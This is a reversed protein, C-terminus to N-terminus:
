RVLGQLEVTAQSIDIGSDQYQTLMRQLSSKLVDPPAGGGKVKLYSQWDLSFDYKLQALKDAKRKEAMARLEAEASAQRRVVAALREKENSVSAKQEQTDKLKANLSDIEAKMSSLENKLLNERRASEDLAEVLDKRYKIEQKILREYEAEVDRDGFRLAFTLSHAPVIAGTLPVSLGYSLESALHKWGLGASLATAREALNLGARSFLLGARETRWAHEVGPNVSVNGSQGASASRRALDLSLTYDERRESVGLRIVRPANDKLAGINFAPNNLNLVSFGVTHTGDPRYVAGLDLAVGSASDGGSSAAASLIKLNAGLDFVGAAARRLQWTGWGFSITKETLAGGDDRYLGAISLTGMKGYAMRPVLAWVGYSNFDAPGQTTRESTLFHAGTEFKRSSGPLAPNGYLSLPDELAASQGGFGAQRAGAPNDEFVAFSPVASSLLLFSAFLFNGCLPVLPFSKNEFFFLHRTKM